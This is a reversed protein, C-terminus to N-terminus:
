QRYYVPNRYQGLKEGLAAVRHVEDFIVIDFPNLNIRGLIYDNNLATATMLLFDGQFSSLAPVRERPPMLGNLILCVPKLDAMWREIEKKWTNYALVRRPVVVLVRCRGRRRWFERVFELAIRTKGVGTPAEVLLCREGDVFFRKVLSDLIEKHEPRLGDNAGEEIDM